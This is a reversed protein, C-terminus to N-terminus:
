VGIFQIYALAYFRPIISAQDTTGTIVVQDSTGSTGTGLTLDSGAQAEHGHTGAVLAHTHNTAGGTENVAFTSGSSPLFRDTLDPTGASGDCLHWGAPIALISGSWETIIGLDIELVSSFTQGFPHPCDGTPGRLEAMFGNTSDQPLQSFLPCSSLAPRPPEATVKQKM